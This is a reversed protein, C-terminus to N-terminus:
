GHDAAQPTRAASRHGPRFAHQRATWAVAWACALLGAIVWPFSRVGTTELLLGGLAGSGAFALNFVTVLMSQAVEAHEGAADALATQLLTPAGSFSLGWLLVGIYVMPVSAHGLGFVLAVACFVGLALLVLMRLFRDVLMGVGWIGLMAAMGFGLLVRDLQAGMGVSDLFPSLYTYLIYHPLIWATVVLLVARVGPTTLAQRFAVPQGATPAAREPLRWAVWLMLLLGVASLCAFVGRWGLLGGAWSALPVGVCLTLPIGFMAVALARGQQHPEVLSRAYPALLSWALGTALGVMFRAALSLLFHTSLATVLNCLCFCALVALLIRRRGWHRTAATLPIAALGSGLACLTVMQGAWAESIGFGAAIQPLLGAPFTENATALFSSLSLAILGGLPFAANAPASAEGTSPSSRNM